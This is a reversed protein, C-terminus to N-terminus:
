AGCVGSSALIWTAALRLSHCHSVPDGGKTLNRRYCVANAFFNLAYRIAGHWALRSLGFRNVRM